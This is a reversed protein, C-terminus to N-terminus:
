GGKLEDEVSAPLPIEYGRNWGEALSSRTIPFSESVVFPPAKKGLIGYGVMEAMLRGEDYAGTGGVGVIAGRKAMNLALPENIGVTTLNVDDRGSARVATLVSGLPEFWSAYIADLDSERTLMASAVEEAGEIDAFGEEEVIDVGPYDRELTQKFAEDWQNIIFFDEDYFMYGLKGKGGLSEGIIDAAIRAASVYDASVTSVYDRGARYGTPINEVFVVQLGNDIAPRLAKATADADVPLTIMADPDKALVTDFDDRQKSAEFGAETRAVIRIGLEDLRDRIGNENADIVADTAHWAIAVTHNGARLKEVETRTLGVESGLVAAEGNPGKFDSADAQATVKPEPRVPGSEEEDGCGVAILSALALLVPM